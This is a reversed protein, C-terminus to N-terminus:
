RAGGEMQFEIQRALFVLLLATQEIMLDLTWDGCSEALSAAADFNASSGDIKEVVRQIAQSLPTALRACPPVAQLSQEFKRILEVAGTKAGEDQQSAGYKRVGNVRINNLALLILDIEERTCDIQKDPIM